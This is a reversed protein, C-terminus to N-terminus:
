GLAKSALALEQGSREPHRQLYRADLYAALLRELAPALDPRERAIRQVYDRPGEHPRQPMGRAALKRTARRWLRLATDTPAAARMQRMVALGVLAMIATVLVTLALVMDQWEGLGFRGLLDLQREPNFGIMWRDWMVNVWDWAVDAQLRWYWFGSSERRLFGPLEAPALAASIGAEIRSPAVAATPDVRVWGRGELWVESWAHADSQRVVYYAGVANLEGGQYGVVVRAPVGAARM